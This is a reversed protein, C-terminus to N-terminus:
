ANLDVVNSVISQIEALPDDPDDRHVYGLDARARATLGAQELARLFTQMTYTTKGALEAQVSPMLQSQSQALYLDDLTEALRRCARVVAGDSDELWEAAKVARIVSLEIARPTHRKARM